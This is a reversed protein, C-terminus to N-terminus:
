RLGTRELLSIDKDEIRFIPKIRVPEKREIIRRLRATCDRLESIQNEGTTDHEDM